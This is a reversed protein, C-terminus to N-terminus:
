SEVNNKLENLLIQKRKIESQLYSILKDVQEDSLDDVLNLNDSIINVVEEINDDLNNMSFLSEM